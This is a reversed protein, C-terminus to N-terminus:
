ENNIIEKILLCESFSFHRFSIGINIKELGDDNDM